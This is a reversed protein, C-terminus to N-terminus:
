LLLEISDDQWRKLYSLSQSNLIINIKKVNRRQENHSYSHSERERHYLM